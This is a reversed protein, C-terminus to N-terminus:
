VAAVETAGLIKDAVSDRTCDAASMVVDPQHCTIAQEAVLRHYGGGTINLLVVDNSDLANSQVAQAVAAVAVEAAPDLDCGETELFLKGAKAAEDNSVAYMHGGTDRLADYVGGAVSYPPRRNSLVSARIAQIQTKASAEKVDDLRREGQSWADTMPAFPANQALHLKMTAAGSCGDARLRLSTEWAAIGGTGSGVAQFYHDPVSGIEEVARLLVVGMGDRRGVNKAGGEAMHGPLESIANALEIADLYDVDGALVAIRVCDAKPVTTWMAPMGCEPLVILAPIQNISCFQLFARGTNGASSIVITRSDGEALRGCVGPAELEKFSCTEMVAGKEPWYGNFVIFLRDLGLARGLGDSQYVAPLCSAGLTSRLPLWDAYRDVGSCDRRIELKKDYVSRLLSPGHEGECGLRFGDEADRYTRGCLPCRLYYDHRDM